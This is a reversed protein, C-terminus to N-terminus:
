GTQVARLVITMIFYRGMRSSDSPEATEALRAVVAWNNNVIFVVLGSTMARILGTVCAPEADFWANRTWPPLPRAYVIFSVAARNPVQVVM